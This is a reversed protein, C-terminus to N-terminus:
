LSDPRLKRALVFVSDAKTYFVRDFSEPTKDQILRDEIIGAGHVVADLRGYREYISDILDGFAVEDRVDLAHYEVRSGKRQVAELTSRIERNKFLRQAAAEVDAPKVM